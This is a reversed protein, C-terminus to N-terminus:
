GKFIRIQENNKITFGLKKYRALRTSFHSRLITARPFSYDYVRAVARKGKKIRRIRGVAQEVTKGNNVSSILFETDWAKVNTGETAKAFTALTIRVKGNEVNNIMEESSISSDGYYCQIVNKNGIHKLLGEYYLEIHKKQTFFLVTVELRMNM